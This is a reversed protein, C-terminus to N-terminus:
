AKQFDMGRNSYNLAKDTYINRTVFDTKQLIDRQNM